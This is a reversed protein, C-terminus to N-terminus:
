VSHVLACCVDTGCCACFDNAAWPLKHVFIGTYLPHVSTLLCPVANRNDFQTLVRHVVSGFEDDDTEFSSLVDHVARVTLVVEPLAQMVISTISLVLVVRCRELLPRIAHVFSPLFSLKGGEIWLCENAGRNVAACLEQAMLSTNPDAVVVVDGLVDAVSSVIRGNNVFLSTNPLDLIDCVDTRIANLDDIPVDASIVRGDAM